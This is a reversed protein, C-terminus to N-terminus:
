KERSNYSVVGGKGRFFIDGDENDYSIVEFGSRALSPRRSGESMESSTGESSEVGM